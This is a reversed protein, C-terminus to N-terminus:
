LIRGAVSIATIQVAALTHYVGPIHLGRLAVVVFVLFPSVFLLIYSLRRNFRDVLM